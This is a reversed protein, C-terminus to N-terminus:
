PTTDIPTATENHVFVYLDGVVLPSAASELPLGQGDGSTLWFSGDSLEGELNGTVKAKAIIVHFDGGSDSVARGEARFYPRQQDRNKTYTKIVNPTVGSTAITGGSMAKWAEFSLGGSEIDWEVNAGQGHVAAVGDDGRLEESEEAESFSLTRSVPLKVGADLSEDAPDMPFLVIERMGFPLVRDSIAM